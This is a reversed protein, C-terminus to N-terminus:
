SILASSAPKRVTRCVSMTSCAFWFRVSLMVSSSPSSDSVTVKAPSVDVTSMVCDVSDSTTSELRITSSGSLPRSAARSLMSTDPMTTVSTFWSDPLVIGPASRSEVM